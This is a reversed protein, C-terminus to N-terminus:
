HCFAFSTEQYWRIELRSGTQRMHHPKGTEEKTQLKENEEELTKKKKKGQKRSCLWKPLKTTSLKLSNQYKQNKFRVGTM